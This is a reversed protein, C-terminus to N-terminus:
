QRTPLPRSRGIPSRVIATRWTRALSRSSRAFGSPRSPPRRATERVGAHDGALLIIRARLAVQQPTTHARELSELAARETGVLGIPLASLRAM